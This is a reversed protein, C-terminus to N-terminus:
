VEFSHGGCLKIDPRTCVSLFLLAGVLSSYPHRTPNLEGQEKNLTVGCVIPLSRPARIFARYKERLAEVYTRQCIHLQRAEVSYQVNMGLFFEPVGMHRVQFRAGVMEQGLQIERRTEGAVLLDDVYIVLMARYREHLFWCVEAGLQRFGAEKAWETFTSLKQLGVCVM